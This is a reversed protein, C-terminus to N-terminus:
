VRLCSLQTEDEKHVNQGAEPGKLILTDMKM